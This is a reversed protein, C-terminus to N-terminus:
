RQPLVWDSWPGDPVEDVEVFKWSVQQGSRVALYDRIAPSIDLGANGNRNPKPPLGEFVYGYDDTYFPGCDEWQAYCVKKGYHIAIWRGKCVSHGPAKAARWFWQILRPAEPKHVRGGAAVDNYPLAIYFPNLRPIFGKPFYGNRQDPDDVGGFNQMWNPDWSSARNHVPNGQTAEEGVWFVTVPINRRWNHNYSKWVQNSEIVIKGKPPVRYPDRLESFSSRQTELQREHTAALKDWLQQAQLVPTVLWALCLGAILRWGLRNRCKGYM